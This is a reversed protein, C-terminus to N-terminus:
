YCCRSLLSANLTVRSENINLNGTRNRSVLSLKSSILSYDCVLSLFHQTNFLFFIVCIPIDTFLPFNVQVLSKEEFVLLISLWKDVVIQFQSSFGIISIACMLQANVQTSSLSMLSCDIRLLSHTVETSMAMIEQSSIMWRSFYWTYMSIAITFKQPDLFTAQSPTSSLLFNLLCSSTM